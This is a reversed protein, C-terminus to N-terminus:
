DTSIPLSGDYTFTQSVVATQATRLRGKTWGSNASSPYYDFQANGDALLHGTSPDVQYDIYGNGPQQVYELAGDRNYFLSTKPDPVDSVAPPTYSELRNTGTYTQNHVQMGPPNVPAKDDSCLPDIPSASSAQLSTRLRFATTM